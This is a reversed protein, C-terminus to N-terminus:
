DLLDKLLNINTERDYIYNEDNIISVLESLTNEFLDNLVIYDYQEAYKLETKANSLRKEIVDSSDLGRSTLRKRLEKISPPIIFISLNHEIANRILNFGQVDIDLIISIGNQIKEDVFSKLTGYQYGHVNAHEIFSDSRRLENFEEDSIFFYDRGHEEGDRPPRTTASISLEIDGTSKEIINKILSSKGAGSPASFVILKTKTAKNLM